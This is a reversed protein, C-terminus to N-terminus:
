PHPEVAPPIPARAALLIADGVIPALLYSRQGRFSLSFGAIEATDLLGQLTNTDKARRAMAIAFGTASPSLGFLLPGSDVDGGKDIGRPWERVGFLGPIPTDFFEKRLSEYGKLAYAEDVHALYLLNWSAGSARVESTATCDSGIRFPLLGTRPDGYRTQFHLLIEKASSSGEPIYVGTREALALAALAAANDPLYVEGPYTEALGCRGKEIKHAIANAVKGLLERHPGKPFTLEDAALCLALHALYGIHGQDSPLTDLASEKWRNTDFASLDSSLARDIIKQLDSESTAVETPFRQAMGSIALASMSLSVIAWEGRFPDGIAEPFSNPGFEPATVRHVLYARRAVLDAADQGRVEADANARTQSFWFGKLITLLAVALILRLLFRRLSTVM